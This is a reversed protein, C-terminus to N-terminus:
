EKINIVNLGMNIIQSVTLNEICWKVTQESAVETSIIWDLEGETDYKEEYWESLYKKFCKIYIEKIENITNVITDEDVLEVVREIRGQVEIPRHFFDFKKRRERENKKNTLTYRGGNVRVTIKAYDTM